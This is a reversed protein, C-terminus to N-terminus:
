TMAVLLVWDRMMLPQLWLKMKTDSSEGSILPLNKPKPESCYSGQQMAEYTHEGRWSLAALATPEQVVRQQYTEM